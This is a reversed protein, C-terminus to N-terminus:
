ADHECTRAFHCSNNSHALMSAMLQSAVQTSYAATIRLNWSHCFSRKSHIIPTPM